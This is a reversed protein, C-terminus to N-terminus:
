STHVAGVSDYGDPRQTTHRQYHDKRVHEELSTTVGRTKSANHHKVVTVKSHRVLIGHNPECEFYKIGKATGNHTGLPRDLRVGYWIADSGVEFQGTYKLEGMCRENNIIVCVRDGIEAPAYHSLAAESTDKARTSVSGRSNQSRANSATIAGSQGHPGAHHRFRHSRTKIGHASSASHGTVHQGHTISVCTRGGGSHHARSSALESMPQFPNSLRSEEQLDGAHAEQSQSDRHISDVDDMEKTHSMPSGEERQKCHSFAVRNCDHEHKVAGTQKGHRSTYCATGERFTAPMLDPTEAAITGGLLRRPSPLHAWHPIGHGSDWWWRHGSDPHNGTPEPPNLAFFNSSRPPLNGIIGYPPTRTSNAFETRPLFPFYKACMLPDAMSNRQYKLNRIHRKLTAITLQYEKRQRALQLRATKVLPTQDAKKMDELQHQLEDESQTLLAITQDREEIEMHLSSVQRRMEEILTKYDTKSIETLSESSDRKLPDPNSTSTSTKVRERHISETSEDNVPAEIAREMKHSQGTHAMGSTRPNEPSTSPKKETQPQRRHSRNYSSSTNIPRRSPRTSPPQPVIKAATHHKTSKDKLPLHPEISRLHTERTVKRTEIQSSQTNTPALSKPPSHPTAILASRTTITESRGNQLSHTSAQLANGLPLRTASSRASPPQDVLPPEMVPQENVKSQRASGQEVIPDAVSTHTTACREHADCDAVSDESHAHGVLSPSTSIGEIETSRKDVLDQQELTPITSQVHHDRDVIAHTDRTEPRAMTSPRSKSNALSEAIAINFANAEIDDTEIYAEIASRNYNEALSIGQEEDDFGETEYTDTRAPTSDAHAKVEHPIFVNEVDQKPTTSDHVSDVVMCDLMVEHHPTPYPHHQVMPTSEEANFDDLAYDALAPNADADAEVSGVSVNEMTKQHPETVIEGFEDNDYSDIPGSQPTEVAANSIDGLEFEVMYEQELATNIDSAPVWEATSASKESNKQVAEISPVSEEAADATSPHTTEDYHHFIPSTDQEIGDHIAEFAAVIIDSDEVSLSHRETQPTKVLQDHIDHHHQEPVDDGTHEIYEHNDVHEGHEIHESDVNQEHHQESNHQDSNQYHQVMESEQDQEDYSKAKHAHSHDVPEVLETMNTNDYGSADDLYQSDRSKPEDHNQLIANEQLLEEMSVREPIEKQGLSEDQDRVLVPENDEQFEVDARKQGDKEYCALNERGTSIHNLYSPTYDVSMANYRNDIDLDSTHNLADDTLHIVALSIASPLHIESSQGALDERKIEGIPDIQTLESQTYVEADAVEASSAQDHMSSREDFDNEYVDETPKNASPDLKLSAKSGTIASAPKSASGTSRMSSKSSRLSVSDGDAVKIVDRKSSTRSASALSKSSPIKHHTSLRQTSDGATSHKSATDSHPLSSCSTKNTNMARSGHRSGNKSMCSASAPRVLPQTAYLSSTSLGNTSMIASKSISGASPTRSKSTTTTLGRTLDQIADLQHTSSVIPHTPDLPPDVTQRRRRSSRSSSSTSTRAEPLRPQYSMSSNSGHSSRPTDHSLHDVSILNKGLSNQSAPRSQLPTCSLSSPNSKISSSNGGKTDIESGMPEPLIESSTAAIDTVSPQQQDLQDLASYSSRLKSTSRHGENQSRSMHLDSKQSHRKSGPNMRYEHLDSSSQDLSKNSATKAYNVVSKQRPEQSTNSTSSQSKLLLKSNNTSSRRSELPLEKISKISGSHSNKSIYDLNSSQRELPTTKADLLLTQSQTRSSSRSQTRVLSSNSKELHAHSTHASSLKKPAAKDDSHKSTSNDADINTESAPLSTLTEECVAINGDSISRTEKLPDVSSEQIEKALSNLTADQIGSQCEAGTKLNEVDADGIEGTEPPALENKLHQSSRSKSAYLKKHGISSMSTRSGSNTLAHNVNQSSNRHSTSKRISAPDRTSSNRNDVSQASGYRSIPRHTIDVDSTEGSASMDHVTRNGSVSQKSISKVLNSKSVKELGESGHLQDTYEPAEHNHTMQSSVVFDVTTGGNHQDPSHNPKNLQEEHCIEEAHKSAQSKISISRTSSYISSASKKLNKRSLSGKISHPSTQSPQGHQEHDSRQICIDAQELANPTSVSINKLSGKVSGTPTKNKVHGSLNSLHTASATKSNRRSKESGIPSKPTPKMMDNSGSRLSANLTHTTFNSSPISAHSVSHNLASRSASRSQSRTRQIPLPDKQKETHASDVHRGSHEGVNEVHSTHHTDSRQTNNDGIYHMERVKSVDVGSRVTVGADTIHHASDYHNGVPHNRESISHSLSAATTM